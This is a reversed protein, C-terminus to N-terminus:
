INTFLNRIGRIAKILEEEAIDVVELSQSLESYEIYSKLAQPIQNITIDRLEIILEALQEPNVNYDKMVEILQKM